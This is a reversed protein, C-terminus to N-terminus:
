CSLRTQHNLHISISDLYVCISSEFSENSIVCNNKDILRKPTFQLYGVETTHAQDCLKERGVHHKRRSVHHITILFEISVKQFKKFSM